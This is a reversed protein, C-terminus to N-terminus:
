LIPAPESNVLFIGFVVNPADQATEAIVHNARGRKYNQQGKNGQSNLNGNCVQLSQQGTGQGSNKQIQPTQMNCTPCINAYHELEGCRFCGNSHIPMIPNYTRVSAGTANGSHNQQQNPTHQLQQNSHQIPQPTRPFQQNQQYGDGQGGTHSQIGQSSNYHPRTNSSSQGQSQFKRKQEGLENHKSELGIAKDLLM